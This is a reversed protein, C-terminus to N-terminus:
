RDPGTWKGKGKDDPPSGGGSDSGAGVSGGDGNATAHGNGAADGNAAAYGNGAVDGNAAAHGNGAADGNAAAHGNGAVDDYASADTEMEVLDQASAEGFGKATKFSPGASGCFQQWESRTSSPGAEGNEMRDLEVEQITAMMRLRMDDSSMEGLARLADVAQQDSLCIYQGSSRGPTGPASLGGALSGPSTQGDVSFGTADRSAASDWARDVSGRRIEAFVQRWRAIHANQLVAQRGVLAGNNAIHGMQDIQGNEHLRMLIGGILVTAGVVTATQVVNQSTINGSFHHQIGAALSAGLAAGFLTSILTATWYSWASSLLHRLEDHVPNLDTQGSAAKALAQTATYNECILGSNLVANAEDLAIQALTATHNAWRRRRDAPTPKLIWVDGIIDKLLTQDTTTGNTFTYVGIESSLNLGICSDSLDMSLNYSTKTTENAWTLEHIGSYERYEGVSATDRTVYQSSRPTLTTNTTNTSNSSSGDLPGFLQSLWEDVSEGAAPPPPALNNGNPISAVHPTTLATSSVICYSVLFTFLQM